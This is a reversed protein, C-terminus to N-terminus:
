DSDRNSPEPASHKSRVPRRVTRKIARWLPLSGLVLNGIRSQNSILLHQISRRERWLRNIMFHESVACSDMWQSDDQEHLLRITELELQVGPSYKSYAEDYAIKFAFAGTGSRLNVKLAIPEGNLFLGQMQLQGRDFASATITEFYSRSADSAALATRSDGKWGSAELRLFSAIWHGLEARDVLQRLQLTGIETLRRHLRRIERRHHSSLLGAIFDEWSDVRRLVARNHQQVVFATHSDTHLVEILAQAFPGDGDLFPWDLLRPSDPHSACYDFCARLVDVEQGARILPTRLFAYEHGWLQWADFPLRGCRGTVFPFLGCLTETVNAKRGGRYVLLIQPPRVHALSAVAAEVNWREYFVNPSSVHRALDDWASTSRAVAESFTCLEVRLSGDLLFEPGSLKGTAAVAPLSQTASVTSPNAAAIM